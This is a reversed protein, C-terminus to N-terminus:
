LSGNHRIRLVGVIIFSIDLICLSSACSSLKIAISVDTTPEFYFGQSYIWESQTGRGATRGFTCWRGYGSKTGVPNLVGRISPNARMGPSVCAKHVTRKQKKQQYAVV